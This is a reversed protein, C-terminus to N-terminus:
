PAKSPNGPIRKSQRWSPNSVSPPAPHLPRASPSPRAPPLSLLLPLIPSSCFAIPPIAVTTTLKVVDYVRTPRACARVRRTAAQTQQSLRRALTTSAQREREAAKSASKQTKARDAVEKLRWIFSWRMARGAANDWRRATATSRCQQLGQKKTQKVSRQLRRRTPPLAQTGGANFGAKGGGEFCGNGVRARIAGAQCQNQALIRSTCGKSQLCKPGRPHSGSRPRCYGRGRGESTCRDRCVFGCETVM